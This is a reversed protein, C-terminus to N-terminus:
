FWVMFNSHFLSSQDAADAGRPIAVGVMLLLFWAIRVGHGMLHISAPADFHLM